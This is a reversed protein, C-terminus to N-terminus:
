LLVVYETSLHQPFVYSGNAKHGYLFPSLESSSLRSLGPTAGISSFAQGVRQSPKSM